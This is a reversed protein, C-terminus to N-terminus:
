LTDICREEAEEFSPASSHVKRRNSLIDAPYSDV